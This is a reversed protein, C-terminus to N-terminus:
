PLPKAGDGHTFLLTAPRVGCTARVINIQDPFREFLFASAIRAGSQPAAAPVTLQLLVVDGERHAGAWRLVVPRGHPDALAFHGRVYRSSASDGALTGLSDAIATGFDDAFVRISVAATTGGPACTIETIATHMPHRAGALLLAMGAGM